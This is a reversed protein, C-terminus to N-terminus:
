WIRKEYAYDDGDDTTRLSTERSLKRRGGEQEADSQEDDSVKYKPPRRPKIPTKKPKKKVSYVSINVFGWVPM